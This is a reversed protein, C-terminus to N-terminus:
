KGYFLIVIQSLIFFSFAFIPIMNDGVVPLGMRGSPAYLIFYELGIIRPKLGSGLM